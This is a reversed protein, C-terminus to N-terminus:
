KLELNVSGPDYEYGAGTRDDVIAPIGLLLINGYARGRTKAEIVTGASGVSPLTCSISLPEFMRQVRAAGPTKDIVYSGKSNGLTCAAGAPTTAVEIVQDSDATLTACASLTITAILLFCRKM